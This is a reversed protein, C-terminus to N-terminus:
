GMPEDLLATPTGSKLALLSNITKPLGIVAASKVLGERMRRALQLHSTTNPTHALAHAFVSPIEDPRNLASLTVGAIFYWTQPPLTSRTRISSLLSPTLISPATM